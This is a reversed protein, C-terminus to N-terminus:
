QPKDNTKEKRKNDFEEELIKLFNDAICTPGNIYFPCNSCDISKCYVRIALFAQELLARQHKTM